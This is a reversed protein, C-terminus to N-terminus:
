FVREKWTQPCIESQIEVELHYHFPKTGRARIYEIMESLGERLTTQTRFGLLKRAKEASCNALRVEMPRDALYIPRL